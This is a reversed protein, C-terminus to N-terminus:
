ASFADIPLVLQDTKTMLINGWSMRWVILSCSSGTNPSVETDFLAFSRGGLLFLILARLFISRSSAIDKLTQSM